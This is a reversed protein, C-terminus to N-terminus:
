EAKLAPLLPTRLAGLVAVSSALMGVALIALLTGGLSVWDVHLTAIRPAVSALASGGGILMGVLLLFANEALVLRALSGRRFGFARLTALEGRREVVNRVLVIGLGVTGLLLGLGGLLEFTSLYTTVVAHFGALKERTTTVDFGFDGLTSEFLAAAETATEFSTDILFYSYGSRSPFHELFARESILLESQFVSDKLTGVLRLRLGEGYEDQLVLEDGLGLHLIWQASNADGIVPIVGPELQQSLLTWPNEEDEPLGLTKVFNFGGRRIMDSPVGLIRPRDPLYLNLCSADDGPRFRFPLVHFPVTPATGGPFGLDLRAARENLDHHLPVDSEAILAFGGSGSSKELLEDGYQHRNAAVAVIAFCASAVLAVSLMSRGPNWASNRAAMGAIAASVLFRVRNGSSGRCWISFFALGAVLFLTGSGFTLGPSAVNGTFLAALVLALAIAGGGFALAPALRGPRRTRPARFSGTLLMPPPIKNLRRVSWWVSFLVVLVAGVWGIILSAPEVHLFLASSGVAPRWFTRLGALMLAAYGIGGAVGLLGGVAALIGGEALLQRRVKRLPHGVALLLGIQKARQEVNLSFLLGVLIAAAVILFFSFSLFLQAFDTAGVAANLGDAKVNRFRMGFADPPLEARLRDRFQQETGELSEGPIVGIRVSTTSGYRTSWLDRGTDRAVFAKPTPGHDDWYQEDKERILGLEVPFPPDWASMDEADRIGPYDPTVDPDAGLGELAVIGEVVFDTSAETLEERAGVVFYEMTVSDGVSALLDRAAWTNLLIGNPSPRPVVGGGSLVLEAWPQGVVPDLAAVVSYPVTRDGRVIGNAVYTQISLAPAGIEGVIRRVADDVNPRLVFESSELVLHDATRRISLGLDDMSVARALMDDVGPADAGPDDASRQDLFVANIKGPLDLRRQVQSMSVFANLPAAQSPQLGFRGWGRDPVVRAVTLRVSGVVDTPDKDGMLSDRPVDSARGFRLLLADGVSAGLEIQLSQNIIVSPFIQGSAREFSPPDSADYLAFFRHDVGLIGIRSARLGTDAHVVSGRLMVAPAISDFRGAFEPDAQLDDVLAERFFREAVLAHDIGGLRDLTLDRLSGRVSDGVLLAGILVATAVGAGLLVALNVRWYYALTRYM